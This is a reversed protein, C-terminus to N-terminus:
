VTFLFGDARFISISGNTESELTPTKFNWLTGIESGHNNVM